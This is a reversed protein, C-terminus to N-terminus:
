EEEESIPCVFVTYPRSGLSIEALDRDIKKKWKEFMRLQRKLKRYEAMSTNRGMAAFGGVVYLMNTRRCEKVAEKWRRYARSM